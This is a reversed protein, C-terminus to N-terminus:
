MGLVDDDSQQSSKINLKTKRKMEIDDWFYPKVLVGGHRGLRTPHVCDFTDIGYRVGNFIDRMGGTLNCIMNYNSYSIFAHNAFLM